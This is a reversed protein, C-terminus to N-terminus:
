GLTHSEKLRAIAQTIEERTMGLANMADALKIAGGKRIIYNYLKQDVEEKSQPRPQKAVGRGRKPVTKAKAHKASRWTRFKRKAFITSPVAIAVGVLGLTVLYSWNPTWEAVVEIPVTVPFSVETENASMQGGWGAFVYPVGYADNASSEVQITALGGPAYWGVGGEPQVIVSPFRSLVLVRYQVTFDVNIATHNELTLYINPTGGLQYRMDRAANYLPLQGQSIDCEFTSGVPFEGAPFANSGALNITKNVSGEIGIQLNLSMDPPLNTEITVRAWKDYYAMLYYPRTLTIECLNSGNSTTNSPTLINGTTLDKWGSLRYDVVKTDYSSTTGFDIVTFQPFFESFGQDPGFDDQSADTGNVKLTLKSVKPLETSIMLEYETDYSFTVSTSSAPQSYQDCLYRTGASDLERSVSIVSTYNSITLTVTGSGLNEIFSNDLYLSTLTSLPLGLVNVAMTHVLQQVLIQLSATAPIAPLNGEQSTATITIVYTGPATVNLVNLTLKSTMPTSGSGPSFTMTSFLQGSSRASLSIPHANNSNAATVTVFVTSSGGQNVSLTPNDLNINLQLSILLQTTWESSMMYYGDITDGGPYTANVYYQGPELGDNWAYSFTGDSESSYM